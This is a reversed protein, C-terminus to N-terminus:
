AAHASGTLSPLTDAPPRQSDPQRELEELAAPLHLVMRTGGDPPSEMELRGGHAEVIEHSIFLGLGVGGHSGDHAQEYRRFIRERDSDSIGTGYDRVAVRVERSAASEGGNADGAGSADGPRYDIEVEIARDTQDFKLANEVLNVVVQELRSRDVRAMVPIDPERVLIPKAGANVRLAAVVGGALAAVDVLEPNLILKGTEIRSLDLLQSILEAVRSSQREIVALANVIKRDDGLAQLRLHRPLWQAYGRLSTVPSRLEHSAVALFDTRLRVAEEADMLAEQYERARSSLQEVSQHLVRNQRELVRCQVVLTAVAVLSGFLALPLLLDGPASSFSGSRNMVIIGAGVVVAVVVLPIHALRAMSTLVM